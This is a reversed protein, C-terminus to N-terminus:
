TKVAGPTKAATDVVFCVVFFNCMHKIHSVIRKKNQREIYVKDTWVVKVVRMEQYLSQSEEM